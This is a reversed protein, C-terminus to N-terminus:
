YRVPPDAKLYIKEYQARLPEFRSTATQADARVSTLENQINKLQTDRVEM